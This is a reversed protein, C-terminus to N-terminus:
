GINEMGTHLLVAFLSILSSFHHLSGLLSHSSLFGDVIREPDFIISLSRENAVELTLHTFQDLISQLIHVFTKIGAVWYIGYLRLFPM